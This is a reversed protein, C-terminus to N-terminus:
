GETLIGSRREREEHDAPEFDPCDVQLQPRRLTVELLDCYHARGQKGRRGKWPRFYRCHLCMRAPEVLGRREAARLVELLSALVDGANDEGLEEVLPILSEDAWDDFGTAVRRGRPTLQLRVARHEEVDRQKTVLGKEELPRLAVSITGSTLELSEALEGVRQDARRALARLISMQRTSVRAGEAARRAAADTVVEIRALAAAIRRHLDSTEPASMNFNLM